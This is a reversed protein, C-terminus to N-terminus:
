VAAPILRIHHAEVGPTGAIRAVEVGDLLVRTIEGDETLHLGPATQGNYDIEITDESVDFDEILPPADLDGGAGLDSAPPARFLFADAGSGGQLTDGAGGALTDNGTGGRMLDAGSRDAGADTPASGDLIDGGAGGELTDQGEGGVLRDDGADGHLLDDGDGGSLLDDGRQGRLLDDGADGHLIDDDAGGAIKDAGTGGHLDDRGAGGDLTDDGDNGVMLDSVDTGIMRDAGGNGLHAEEAQAIPAAWTGAIRDTLHDGGIQDRPPLDPAADRSEEADVDLIVPDPQGPPSGPMDRAITGGALLDEQHEEGSDGTDDAEAGDDDPPDTRLAADGALPMAMMTGSVMLGLLGAILLM